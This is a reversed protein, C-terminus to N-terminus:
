IRLGLAEPPTLAGIRAVVTGGRPCAWVAEGKVVKADLPHTNSHAPCHPWVAPKGEAWLAEVAWEQVQGAIEALRVGPQDDPYAYVGQGSGDPAYLIVGPYDDDPDRIDPQVPCQAHLDRVVTDLARTFEDDTM